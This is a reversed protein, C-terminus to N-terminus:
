ILVLKLQFSLVLPHILHQQAAIALKHEVEDGEQNWHLDVKTKEEL